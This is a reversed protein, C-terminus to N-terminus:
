KKEIKIIQTSSSKRTKSYGKLSQIALDLQKPSNSAEVATAFWPHTKCQAATMREFPNKVLLKKIFDKANVSVEDWDPSPFDYDINTIKQFLEQHTEAFFPTYGCLLIYTIVGVSWMDVAMDYPKCELVEPAVYDPTGCATRLEEGQEFVKSLGFDAIRVFELEDAGTTSCLLNEPKLDRHCVGHQHMYDVADVIQVVIHRADSESYQGKEVIKDFLEGGNVLEMVLFLTEATNDYVDILQIIHKHKLKKMIEIESGLRRMDAATIHQKAITKIAVKEKTERHTAEKVVSFAGQGIVPGFEYVEEIKQKKKLKKFLKLM